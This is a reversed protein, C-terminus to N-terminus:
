HQRTMVSFETYELKAQVPFGKFAKHFSPMEKFKMLATSARSKYPVGHHFREPSAEPPAIESGDHPRRELFEKLGCLWSMDKVEAAAASLGRGVEGFPELLSVTREWPEDKRIEEWVERRQFCGAIFIRICQFEMSGRYVCAFDGKANIVIGPHQNVCEM